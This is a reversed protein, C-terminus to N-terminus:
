PLKNTNKPKQNKTHRTDFKTRLYEPDPNSLAQAPLAVYKLVNDVDESLEDKGILLWLHGIVMSVMRHAAIKVTCGHFLGARPPNFMTLIRM